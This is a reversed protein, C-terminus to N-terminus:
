QPGGMSGARQQAQARVRQSPRRCLGSMLIDRRITVDVRRACGPAVCRSRRLCSPRHRGSQWNRRTAGTLHHARATARADLRTRRIRGLMLVGARIGTFGLVILRADPKHIGFVTWCSLEGLILSWTGCSIGHASGNPLEAEVPAKADDPLAVLLAVGCEEVVRLRARYGNLQREESLAVRRARRV